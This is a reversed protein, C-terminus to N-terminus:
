GVCLSLDRAVLETVLTPFSVLWFMSSGPDLAIGEQALRHAVANCSRPAFLLLVDNFSAGIFFKLERFIMGEPAADWETSQLANKLTQCDTEVEITMMGQEAAVRLAQLCAMSEAQLSGSVANIQGAGACEIEGADNRIVFGWGGTRTEERYSGDINIKMYGSRPKNWRPQASSSTDSKKAFSDMFELYYRQIQMGVQGSSKIREGANVVNRETTLVWM